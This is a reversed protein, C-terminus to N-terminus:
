GNRPSPIYNVYPMLIYATNSGTYTFKIAIWNGGLYDGELLAIVPDIGSNADRWLAAYYLGENVEYDVSILQSQQFLGTQPNVLSTTINGNTPSTWVTNGQYSVALFKKKLAVDKNFVLTIYSTYQVGYFNAMLTTNDHSWLSGNKFSCLLTGISVMNEPNFSVFSEFGEKDDRVENFTLTAAAQSFLVNGNIDYRNIAELAVIYKKTYYDFVGYVTPNGLYPQGLAGIGNNLNTQFAKLQTVFYADMEFEHSINIIGDQSIRIVANKNNDVFYVAYNYYAFSEPLDGIGFKGKFPYQINNLIQTSQASLPNDATDQVMQQLIPVNGTDFKQFVWLIRGEVYLKMIDGLSRDYQDFNTGYFRNIGNINTGFQFTQGNRILVPNYTQKANVDVIFARGNGNVKSPYYDSFNYDIIGQNGVASIEQLKLTGLVVAFDVGGIATSAGIVLSTIATQEMTVIGTFNYTYTDTAILEDTINLLPVTMLSADGGVTSYSYGNIKLIPNPNNLSLIKITISGTIKFKVSYPAGTVLRLINTDKSITNTTLYSQPTYNSDNYSQEGLFLPISVISGDNANISTTTSPFSYNIENGVPINRIRYYADGENTLVFNASVSLDSSQNQTLGFHFATSTGPNGILYRQNFEYYFNLNNSASLAPTYINILYNAFNGDGFNFSSSLNTPLIIQLFQGQQQAGNIIPNILSAQIEFDNSAYINATTGDTAYRKIFRIRDNPTFGYTLQSGITPNDLVFQNLNAISIYAYQYGLNNATIDKYTRDSIWYESYTKSLNNTRVIQFYSAWLPPRYTIGLNIIPLTPTNGAGESYNATVVSGNTNTIVGNTRGEADFYVIGFQYHSYWDYCSVSNNGISTNPAYVIHSNLFQGGVKSLLISNATTEVLAWGSDTEYENAFRALVSSVTDTNGIVQNVLFGNNNIILDDGVSLIGGIFIRVYLFGNLSTKVNSVVLIETEQYNTSLQSGSGTNLIGDNAPLLDYNEKIAAYALVNGNLLAQARATLPVYDFIQEAETPDVFAYAQNNYFTYSFLDDDPINSTTKDISDVLFPQGFENGLSQMAWLEIKTVNKQGSQLVLFIGCNKTPDQDVSPNTSLIPLPIISQASPVSKELDDYIFRTKFVFLKKHMNNVTSASDNIYVGKPQMSPPEKIVNIYSELYFPSYDGNPTIATLVNIKRPPNLGDTWFMLDGTDDINIIDVHNIRYSPDFKLVPVGNTDTLDRILTVVTNASKDWYVIYHNGNSNWVFYYVRNRIPDAKSGICKNVGAPQTYPVLQNGVINSVVDDKLESQSDRTVNLADIYDEAPVKYPSADTNLKGGINKQEIM